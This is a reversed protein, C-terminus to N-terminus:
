RASVLARRYVAMYDDVVGALDFRRSRARAREGLERVSAPSGVLERLASALAAEDGPPVLRAVAGRQTVEGVGGVDTSVVALGTAMAELLALPLGETRSSLAFLDFAALVRSVDRRAGPVVIWPEYRRAEARVREMEPGDGVIVMRVGPGLVQGAARVLLAHDKEVSSRGVTGIVFADEPIGLEARVEARAVEDPAFADLDIGNPIVVLREPPCERNKSAVAATAESVAVYAHALHGGFRRLWLRRGADPNAGHKTHVVARRALRGAAAGYLLPQPNHTHVVDISEDLLLRALRLVVGPRVSPGKPVSRIAVGRAEFEEALAGHPPAALSVAVAVHGLRVQAAALDLAVREQGGMQLSSLVHAIRLM